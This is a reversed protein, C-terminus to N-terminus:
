FLLLGPTLLLGLVVPLCGWGLGVCGGREAEVQPEEPGPTGVTSEDNVAM